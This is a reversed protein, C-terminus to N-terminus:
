EETSQKPNEIFKQVLDGMMKIHKEYQDPAQMTRKLYHRYTKMFLAITVKSLSYDAAALVLSNVSEFASKLRQMEETRYKSEEEPTRTTVQLELDKYRFYSVTLENARAMLGHAENQRLKAQPNGLKKAVASLSAEIEKCYEDYRIIPLLAQASIKRVFYTGSKSFAKILDVFERISKERSAGQVIDTLEGEKESDVLQFSPVLRSILLLVSFVVMDTREQQEKSLKKAASCDRLVQKFYEALDKYRHVFEWISLGKKRSLDQSQVDTTNLLRKTLAAFCM